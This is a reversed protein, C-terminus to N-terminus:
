NSCVAEKRPSVEFNNRSPKQNYLIMLARRRDHLPEELPMTVLNPNREAVLLSQFNGGLVGNLREDAIEFQRVAVTAIEQPLKLADARDLPNHDTPM